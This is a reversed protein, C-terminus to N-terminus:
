NLQYFRKDNFVLSLNLTIIFDRIMSVGYTEFGIKDLFFSKM